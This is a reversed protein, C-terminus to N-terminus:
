LYTWRHGSAHHGFSNSTPIVPEFGTRVVLVFVYTPLSSALCIAFCEPSLPPSVVSPSMRVVPLRSLWRVVDPAVTSETYALVVRTRLSPFQWIVSSDRAASFARDAMAPLVPSSSSDEGKAIHGSPYNQAFIHVETCKERFLGFFISRM